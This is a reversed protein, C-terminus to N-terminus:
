NKYPRDSRDGRDYGSSRESRDYRDGRDYGSGREPRDYRDNRGSRESRESRESVNLDPANKYYDLFRNFEASVFRKILEERSLWELKKYIVTLFDEIEKDNVEVKEMKDVLSFLQKECIEKGGPVPKYEFKKHILREIMPIKNREKSIIISVSVGSKGARGTRGSRHT